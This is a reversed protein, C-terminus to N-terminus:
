YDSQLSSVLTTMHISLGFLFLLLQTPKDHHVWILEVHVLFFFGPFFLNGATSLFM